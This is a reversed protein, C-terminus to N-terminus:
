PPEHIGHARLVHSRLSGTDSITQVGVLDGPEGCRGNRARRRVGGSRGKPCADAEAADTLFTRFSILAVLAGVSFPAFSLFSTSRPRSQNAVRAPRALVVGVPGVLLSRHARPRTGCFGLVHGVYPRRDDNRLALV